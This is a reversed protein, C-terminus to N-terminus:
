NGAIHYAAVAQGLSLGGDNAPVQRHLLIKFGASELAAVTKRLLTHNQWVGGSLAVAGASTHRQLHLCTRLIASSVGNHFRASIVNPTLGARLDVNLAHLLSRWELREGALDMPYTETEDPDALAEFEIAAQAEYTIHQRGTVLAAVGDFLRGISSTLPANIGCELQRQVTAIEEVALGSFTAYADSAPLGAAAMLSLATRWPHAVASDGGPLRFPALFALREFQRYDCLLFEGGWITGDTGYGTGDFVVGIVSEGAAVCNDAMCAAIHAHHHQIGIAPLSEETARHLAYQTSLYDPHLDFAIFAPRVRLLEEFGRIGAEFVELTENNKLDGIHQSIFAYPGRTLCYTNKLEGGVALIGPLDWPLRVPDPAYGRSRRIFCAPARGAELPLVRTVSDDCRHQIERDHLLFADAIGRLRDFAEEDDVILPEESRNGSTMVLAEPFGPAPQMILVHLPTYPLMVGITNQGPALELALDSDPRRGLIVIPRARSTLLGFEAESVLCHRKVTELDPMMVALPKHPRHKRQRLRRVAASDTADCALHFGGLGRIGIIQGQMLRSRTGQLAEEGEIREEGACLWVRPGCDPCAVPQAHFRRDSPDAYEAACQPCMQFREMTTLRRDYPIGQIITYRPGCNTCNIFPYRYRRDDPDNLEALCDSCISVDPLVPQIDPEGAQSRRIEFGAFRRPPQWAMEFGDIRALPPAQSHLSAIFEELTAAPGDVEINVGSASNLVWGQLALRSALNYVFPRFGVGQVLGRIHISVGRASTDM